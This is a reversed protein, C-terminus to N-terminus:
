CLEKLKLDQWRCINQLNIDYIRNTKLFMADFPHITSGYYKNPKQCDGSPIQIDPYEYQSMMFPKIKHGNDKIVKSMGIECWHIYRRKFNKDTFNSLGLEKNYDAKLVRSELLMQIGLRDTGWCASQIHLHGKKRDTDTWNWCPGVLRVRKDIKDLFLDIWSTNSKIYDPLFPGRCTDNIFIFFDFNDEGFSKISHYFGAFDGYTNERELTNKEGFDIGLSDKKGNIVFCTKTLDNNIEGHNFFYEINEKYLHKYSKKHLTPQSFYTFAREPIVFTILVRSTKPDFRKIPFKKM